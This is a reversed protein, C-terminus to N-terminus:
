LTLELREMRVCSMSLTPVIMSVANSAPAFVSSPMLKEQLLVPSASSCAIRWAAILAIAFACTYASAPPMATLPILDTM